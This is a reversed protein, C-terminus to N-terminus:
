IEPTVPCNATLNAHVMGEFDNRSPHGLMAHLHHAEITGEVQKKTYGEFNERIMTVHAIGTEEKEKMDLYHLGSEHPIFEVVGQTM